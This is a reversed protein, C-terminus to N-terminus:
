SRARRRIAETTAGERDHRWGPPGWVYQWRQGVTLGPQFVDGVMSLAEHLAIRVPNFTALDHVLGYRCPEEADEEVYTGFLHDWVMFINGYNRDLYRANAAHHVRHNSPTNLLWEIPRPLKPVLETHTFFQYVTSLAGVFVIMVPHFGLLVLPIRFVFAGAFVNTWQNRLATSFNFYQSSHHANHVAWFWRREHNIRHHWYGIFDDAVVCAAFAPLSWGLDFLAFRTHVFGWVGLAVFGLVLGLGLKIVGMALSAATDRPDHAAGLGLELLLALVFVPVALELPSPLDPM